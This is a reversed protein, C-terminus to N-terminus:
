DLVNKRALAGRVAVRHTAFFGNRGQDFALMACEARIAFHLLRRRTFLDSGRFILDRLEQEHVAATIATRAPKITPRL